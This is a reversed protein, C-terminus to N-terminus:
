MKNMECCRRVEDAWQQPYCILLEEHQMDHTCHGPCFYRRNQDGFSYFRM